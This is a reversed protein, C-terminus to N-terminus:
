PMRELAARDIKSMRNRPLESLFRFEGPVAYRPLLQLCVSLLQPQVQEPQAGERLVVCARVMQTNLNKDPVGVVCVERVAELSSIAAEVQHPFINYGKRIITNKLRAQFYVYGDGDIRGYDGTRLWNRGDWPFAAQTGEPDNLYGLMMTNTCVLLEGEGTRRPIGDGDIVAIECGPLPYGSASLRDHERSNSFCATVTETMGYGEFLHRKGDIRRDFDTKLKEGVLDGSVFCDGIQRIGPGSFEPQNLLSQFLAPVGTLITVKERKIIRVAGKADWQAMLALRGGCALLQHVNMALGSGHFMPLVALLTDRTLDRGPFYNKANEVWCNLARHSHMVTKPMGTSGSSHLYVACDDALEKQVPIGGYPAGPRELSEFPIARAPRRVQNKLRYGLGYLLGMRTGIRAFILKGAFDAQGSQPFHDGTILIRSKAAAMNERLGNLPVLPHVMSCVGGLRAVAYVAAVSQPCNPLHITVVTGRSVGLAALHASICDIRRFLERYSINRGYFWLASQQDSFELGQRAYEYISTNPTM